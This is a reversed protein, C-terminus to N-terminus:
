GVARVLRAIPPRDSVRLLRGIDALRFIAQQYETRFRGVKIQTGLPPTEWLPIPLSKITAYFEEIDVGFQGPVEAGFSIIAVGDVYPDVSARLDLEVERLNITDDIRDKTPDNDLFVKKDDVRLLFDAAVTLRGTGEVLVGVLFVVADVDAATTLLVTAPPMVLTVLEGVVMEVSPIWGPPVIM